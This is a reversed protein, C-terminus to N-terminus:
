KKVTQVTQQQKPQFEERSIAKVSTDAKPESAPKTEEKATPKKKDGDSKAPKSTARVAHGIATLSDAFMEASWGGGDGEVHFRDGPKYASGNYTHETISEMEVTDKKKDSM